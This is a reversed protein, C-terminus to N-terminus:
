YENAATLSSLHIATYSNSLNTQSGAHMKLTHSYAHRQISAPQSKQFTTSLSTEACLDRSRAQSISPVSLTRTDSYFSATNKIGEVFMYARFQQQRHAHARKHIANMIHQDTDEIHKISNYLQFQQSKYSQLSQTLITPVASTQIITHDTYSSSDSSQRQAHTRKHIADM